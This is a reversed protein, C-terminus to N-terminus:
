MEYKYTLGGGLSPNFNNNVTQQHFMETENQQMLPFSQKKSMEGLNEVEVKRFLCFRVLSGIHSGGTRM